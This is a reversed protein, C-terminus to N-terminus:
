TDSTLVFIPAFRCPLSAQMRRDDRLGCGRRRNLQVIPPRRRCGPEILSRGQRVLRRGWEDVARQAVADVQDLDRVDLDHLVRESVADAVKATERLDYTDGPFTGVVTRVGAEAYSAALPGSRRAPSSRSEHTAPSRRDVRCCRLKRAGFIVFGSVFTGVAGVLLAAHGWNSGSALMGTVIAGAVIAGPQSLANLFATGTARCSTDYCEGMYFLMAAYPGILFFL